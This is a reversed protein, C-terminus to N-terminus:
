DDLMFLGFRAAEVTHSLFRLSSNIDFSDDPLIQVLPELSYELLTILALWRSKIATIM